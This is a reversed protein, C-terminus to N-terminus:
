SQQTNLSVMPFDNAPQRVNKSKSHVSEDDKNDSVSGTHVYMSWMGKEANPLFLCKLRESLERNLKMNNPQMFNGKVM